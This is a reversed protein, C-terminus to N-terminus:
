KLLFMHTQLFEDSDGARNQIYKIRANKSIEQCIRLVEDFDYLFLEDDKEGKYERTLFNFAIGKTALQWMKQIFSQLVAYNDTDLVAALTGSFFVFDFTRRFSYELFDACIFHESPYKMKALDVAMHYIDIGVYERVNRKRLFAAFDGTGSGVDLVSAQSFPLATYDSITCLLEFNGYKDKDGWGDDQNHRLFYGYFDNNIQQDKPSYKM